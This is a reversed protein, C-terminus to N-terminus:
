IFVVIVFIFALVVAIYINPVKGLWVPPLRDIMWLSAEGGPVQPSPPIIYPKIWPYGAANSFAWFTGIVMYGSLAGMFLGLLMDTVRDRKETSKAIRSFRPSQYGFFVIIMLVTMRFYYDIEPSQQLTTSLVPMLNEAIAIFALALIVSFSVLLEKAWGRMVGNVAFLITFMWFAIILAIM